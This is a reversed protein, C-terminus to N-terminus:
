AFVEEQAVEGREIWLPLSYLYASKGKGNGKVCRGLRVVIGRAVLNALYSGEPDRSSLSKRTGRWPLGVIECLERRSLPGREWLSNLIQVARPRLDDPWGAAKARQSFVLSRVEALNRVGAEQCQKRTRQRVAEIRRESLNNSPLGLQTRLFGAHRRGCGIVAAIESDSYGEKHLARLTTEWSESVRKQEGCLGLEAARQYVSPATRGLRKAIEVTRRTGYNAKLYRLERATWPRGPM